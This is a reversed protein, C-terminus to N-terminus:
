HEPFAWVHIKIAFLVYNGLKLIVLNRIFDDNEHMFYIIKAVMMKLRVTSLHDAAANYLRIGVKYTPQSCLRYVTIPTFEPFDKAV